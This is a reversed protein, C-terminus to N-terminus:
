ECKNNKNCNKFSNIVGVCSSVLAWGDASDMFVAQTRNAPGTTVKLDNLCPAGLLRRPTASVSNVAAM